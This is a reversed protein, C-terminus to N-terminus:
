DQTVTVGEADIGDALTSGTVTATGAGADEQVLELGTDDGDDNNGTITGTVTVTVDGGDEEEFVAGKGGNATAISATMEGVVGGADAESHKFADDANGSATARLYSALIHGAGEEDYDVGEDFNGRIESDIMLSRLDGAGAEDFDIGDDVDIGIEYAEVSGDDYLDVEREFCRDDPTGTVDGPIDAEARAGPEFEGEPAEPMFAALLDPHCYAGNDVFRAGRVTAIVHGAQGEDLEVGDAGVRTFTSDLAVLRIDGGAREDVRLGDADFKGNGVDDITVANLHVAISAPSGEGAGGGGGGCADALSCDSVHVGHNAVGAVTVNDLTLRVTGQQDDRVDVFIGKGATAGDLDGRAEIDFGGPGRFTLDTVTLDAGASAALLTTNAATSVTQGNGLITLPGTGAYDLTEAIEIDEATVIAIQAGGEREAAAALAARLSGAGTDAPTTVLIPAEALAPTALAGLALAAASLGSKLHTKRM